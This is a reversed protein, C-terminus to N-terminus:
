IMFVRGTAFRLLTEITKKVFDVTYRLCTYHPVKSVPEAIEQWHLARHLQPTLVLRVVWVSCM